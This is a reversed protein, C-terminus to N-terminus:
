LLGREIAVRTAAARGPVDLKNYVSRLHQSVTRPSIFLREAVEADTLGEAVLLLVQIERRSLIVASRGTLYDLQGTAHQLYRERITGDQITAARDRANAQAAALERAADQPRAQLHYLQVFALHIAHLWSGAGQRAAGSLTTQLDAEADQLRRMGTLALGRLLLLNIPVHAGPRSPSSAILWDVIRLVEEPRNRALALEASASWQIRQAVTPPDTAQDLEDELLQAADDLLGQRIYALALFASACRAMFRSGVHKALALSRELYARAETYAFLDLYSSGLTWLAIATWQHHAIEETIDLGMRLTRQAEGYSGQAALNSGLHILGFAEGSRWGIDRAIALAREAAKQGEPLTLGPTSSMNMAAASDAQLNVLSSSLLQREGMENLLTVAQHYHAASKVLDGTLMAAM